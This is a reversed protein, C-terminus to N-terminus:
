IIYLYLSFRLRGADSVLRYGKCEHNELDIGQAQDASGKLMIQLIAAIAAAGLTAFIDLTM